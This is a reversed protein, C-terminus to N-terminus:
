RDKGPPNDAQSQATPKEGSRFGILWHEKNAKWWNLCQQRTANDPLPSSVARFPNKRVPKLWEPIFPVLSEDGKEIQEMIFPLSALGGRTLQDFFVPQIPHEGLREIGLKRRGYIEAAHATAWAGGNKLWHRWLAVFVGGSIEGLEPFEEVRYAALGSLPIIRFRTHTIHELCFHVPQDIHGITSVDYEYQCAHEVLPIAARIDGLLALAHAAFQYYRGRQPLIRIIQDVACPDGLYGLALIAYDVLPYEKRPDRWDREPKDGSHTEMINCLPEFARRDGIAGLSLAAFCRGLHYYLGEKDALRSEPPYQFEGRLVSILFPVADANDLGKAPTFIPEFVWGVQVLEFGGHFWTSMIANELLGALQASSDTNQSVGIGAVVPIVLLVLSVQCVRTCHM